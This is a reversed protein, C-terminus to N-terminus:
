LGHVTFSVPKESMVLGDDGSLGRRLDYVEWTARLALEEERHVCVAPKRQSGSEGQLSPWCYRGPHATLFSCWWMVVVRRRVKGVVFIYETQGGSTM